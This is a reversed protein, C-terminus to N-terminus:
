FIRSYRINDGITTLGNTSSSESIITRTSTM